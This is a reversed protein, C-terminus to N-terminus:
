GTLNRATIDRKQGKMVGTRRLVTIIVNRIAEENVSEKNQKINLHWRINWFNNEIQTALSMWDCDLESAIIDQEALKIAVYPAIELRFAHEFPTQAPFWEGTTFKLDPSEMYDLMTREWNNSWTSDSAWYVESARLLEEFLAVYHEKPIDKTKKLHHVCLFFGNWFDDGADNGSAKRKVRLLWSLALAHNPNFSPAGSLLHEWHKQQRLFDKATRHLYTVETTIGRSDYEPTQLFGKTRSMIRRRSAEARYTIENDTLADNNKRMSAELGDQVFSIDILQLPANSAEVLQFLESTDKFYQPHLQDLIQRFLGDLDSPLARLRAQLDMINDGDRCGDILSQVVLRVWLFVGQARETIGFILDAAPGRMYRELTLFMPSSRLKNAVFLHIDERTLEEMRLRPRGEFAEEFALLPRSAVCLKVNAFNALKLIYRCLEMSDGDCEDLGDIFFAFRLEQDAVLTELANTLELWTWPQSDGGFLEHANWRREFLIPLMHPRHELVQALLSRLLGMRSMQMVTGSNWFFFGTIILPYPNAWMSLTHATKYHEKLYKMLTSKGSGPKGTIWYLRQPGKMWDLFNNAPPLAKITESCPITSSAKSHGSSSRLANEAHHFIWRFTQQHAEEIAMYRDQIETFKLLELLKRKIVAEHDETLALSLAASFKEVEREDNQQM